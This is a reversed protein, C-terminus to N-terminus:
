KAGKADQLGRIFDAAKKLATRVPMEQELVQYMANTASEQATNFFISTRYWPLIDEERAADLFLQYTRQDDLVPSPLNTLADLGPVYSVFAGSFTKMHAVTAAKSLRLFVSVEAALKKVEPPHSDPIVQCVGDAAAARRGGPAIAPLRSVKWEGATEPANDRIVFDQWNPYFMMALRGSKYAQWMQPGQEFHATLGSKWIRKCTEAVDVHYDSDFIVNGDKDFYGTSDQLVIQNFTDGALENFLGIDHDRLKRGVALLEDYTSVQDAFEDPDTPLGAQRLLDERYGFQLVGTDDPVQYLRDDILAGQWVPELIDSRHPTVDDTVDYLGGTHAFTRYYPMGTRVIAPLGASLGAGMSVLAKQHLQDYPLATWRFTVDPFRDNLGSTREIQQWQAATEWVWIELTTGDPTVKSTATSACGAVPALTGGVALGAAAGLLRRRSFPRSATRPLPRPALPTDRRSPGM